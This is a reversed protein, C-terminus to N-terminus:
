LKASKSIIKKLSTINQGNKNSSVYDFPKINKFDKHKQYFNLLLKDNICQIYMKESEFIPTNDLKSILNEM